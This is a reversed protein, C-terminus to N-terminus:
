KNPQLKQRLILVLSRFLKFWSMRHLKFVYPDSVPNRVKLGKLQFESLDVTKLVPFGRFRNLLNKGSILEICYAKDIIQIIEKRRDWYRDGRSYCGKIPHGNLKEVLSMFHNSFSFDCYIKSRNEPDIMLIKVFNIAMFQQGNFNERIKKIFDRHVIDDNDLRTTIVYETDKELLNMIDNCYSASFDNYGNVLFIKILDGHSNELDIFKQKAPEPTTIDFYIMWLFDTKTQNLVSPLCYKFFLGTRHDLWEDTIVGRWGEDESRLNFRTIIFHKYKM